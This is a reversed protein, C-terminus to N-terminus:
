RRRTRNECGALLGDDLGAGRTSSIEHKKFMRGGRGRDRDKEPTLRTYAAGAKKLHLRPTFEREKKLHGSGTWQYVAQAEAQYWGAMALGESVTRGPQSM